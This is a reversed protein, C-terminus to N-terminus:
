KISYFIPEVYNLLKFHGCSNLPLLAFQFGPSDSELSQMSLRKATSSSVVVRPTKWLWNLQEM